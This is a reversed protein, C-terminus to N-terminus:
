RSVTYIFLRDRADSRSEDIYVTACYCTTFMWGAAAAATQRNIDKEMM